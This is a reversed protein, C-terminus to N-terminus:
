HKQFNLCVEPLPKQLGSTSDPIEEFSNRIKSHRVWGETTVTTIWSVAILLFTSIMLTINCYKLNLFNSTRPRCILLRWLELPFKKEEGQFVEFNPVKKWLYNARFAIAELGYRVTTTNKYDLLQCNNELKSQEFSM